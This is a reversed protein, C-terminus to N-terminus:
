IYIIKKIGDLQFINEKDLHGEEVYICNNDFEHFNLVNPQMFASGNSLHLIYVANPIFSYGDKYFNITNKM